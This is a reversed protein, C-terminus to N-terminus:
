AKGGTSPAGTWVEILAFGKTPPAFAWEQVVECLRPRDDVIFGLRNKGVCLKDIGFKFGDNFRDPEVSSFRVCRVFPRGKLPTRRPRHQIWMALGIEKKARALKWPQAEGERTRRNQPQVLALPLAFRAVLHGKPTAREVHKPAPAALIADARNLADAIWAADLRVSPVRLTAGM